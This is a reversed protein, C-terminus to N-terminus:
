KKGSGRVIIINSYNYAVASVYSIQSNNDDDENDSDEPYIFDTDEGTALDFGSYDAIFDALETIQEININPAYDIQYKGEDVTIEISINPNKIVKKMANFIKRLLKTFNYYDTSYIHYEKWRDNQVINWENLIEWLGKRFPTENYFMELTLYQESSYGQMMEIFNDDIEDILKGFSEAFQKKRDIREMEKKIKGIVRLLDMTEFVKTTAPNIIEEKVEKVEKVEKIEKVEKVKKGKYKSLLEELQKKTLGTIRIDKYTKKLIKLEEKLQKITPM